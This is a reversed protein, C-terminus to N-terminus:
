FVPAEQGGPYHCQDNSPCLFRPTAADTSFTTSFAHDYDQVYMNHVRVAYVGGAAPVTQKFYGWADTYGKPAAWTSFDVPTSGFISEKQLTIQGSLDANVFLGGNVALNWQHFNQQLNLDLVVEFIEHWNQSANGPFLQGYYLCIDTNVTYVDLITSVPLKGPHCDEIPLETGPGAPGRASPTEISASLKEAPDGDADYTQIEVTGAGCTFDVPASSDVGQAVAEDRLNNIATECIAPLDASDKEEAHVPAASLGIFLAGVALSGLTTRIVPRRTRNKMQVGLKYGCDAAQAM